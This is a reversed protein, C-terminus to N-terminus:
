DLTYRYPSNAPFLFLRGRQFPLLLFAPSLRGRQLHSLYRDPRTSSLPISPTKLTSHLASQQHHHHGARPQQEHLGNRKEQALLGM